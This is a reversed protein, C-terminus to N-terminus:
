ASIHAIRQLADLSADRDAAAPVVGVISERYLDVWVWVCVNKAFTSVSEPTDKPMQCYGFWLSHTEGHVTSPLARLFAGSLLAM